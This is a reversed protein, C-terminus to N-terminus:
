YCWVMGDRCVNLLRVSIPPSSMSGAQMPRIKRRIIFSDKRTGIM